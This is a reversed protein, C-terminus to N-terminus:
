VNKGLFIKLYEYLKPCYYKFRLNIYRKYEYIVINLVNKEIKLLDILNMKKELLEIDRNTIFINEWEEFYCFHDFNLDVMKKGRWIIENAILRPLFICKDTLQSIWYNRVSENKKMAVQIILPFVTSFHKYFNKKDSKTLYKLFYDIGISPHLNKSIEININIFNFINNIEGAFIFDGVYFFESRIFESFVIKNGVNYRDIMKEDVTFLNTLWDILKLPILQDTRIKLVHTVKTNKKLYILGAQTSYFQKKRNDPDNCPPLQNEILFVNNFNNKKFSFGSEIWTSIVLQDVLPSFIKINENITDTSDYGKKCNNGGQGYTIIPGQIIIGWKINSKNIM